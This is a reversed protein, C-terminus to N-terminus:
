ASLWSAACAVAINYWGTQSLALITPDCTPGVVLVNDGPLSNLLAPIM